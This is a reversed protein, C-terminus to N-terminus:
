KKFHVERLGRDGQWRWWQKYIDPLQPFKAQAVACRFVDEVCPDVKKAIIRTFDYYMKAPNARALSDFSHIGLMWIKEALKPGVSGLRQFLALTIIKLCREREIGTMQHLVEESFKCLEKKSIKAEKLLRAERSTLAVKSSQKQGCGKNMAVVRAAKHM